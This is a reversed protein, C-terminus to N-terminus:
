LISYGHLRDLASLSKKNARNKVYRMHLSCILLSPLLVSVDLSCYKLKISKENNEYALTHVDNQEYNWSTVVLVVYM